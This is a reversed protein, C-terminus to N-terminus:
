SISCHPMLIHKPMYHACRLMNHSLLAECKQHQGISQAQVQADHADGSVGAEHEASVPSSSGSSNCSSYYSSSRSSSHNSSGASRGEESAGTSASGDTLGGPVEQVEASPGANGEHQSLRRSHPRHLRSGDADGHRDTHAPEESLSALTNMSKSPSPMVPHRDRSSMPQRASLGSATRASATRDRSSDTLSQFTEKLSLSKLDLSIAPAASHAHHLSRSTNQASAIASEAQLEM